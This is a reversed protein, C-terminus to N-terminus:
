STLLSRKNLHDLKKNKRNRKREFPLKHTKDYEELAKFVEKNREIIEKIKKNSISM